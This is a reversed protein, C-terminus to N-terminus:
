VLVKLWRGSWIYGLLSVAHGGFSFLLWTSLLPFMWLSLSLSFSLSLIFYLIFYFFPSLFPFPVLVYHLHLPTILFVPLNSIRSLFYSFAKFLHHFHVHLPLLLFSNGTSHASLPTISGGWERSWESSINLHHFLSVGNHDCLLHITDISIRNIYITDPQISGPPAQQANPLCYARKLM